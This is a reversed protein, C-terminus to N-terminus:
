QWALPPLFWICVASRVNVLTKNFCWMKFVLGLDIALLWFYWLCPLLRCPDTATTLHAFTCDLNELPTTAIWAFILCHCLCSSFFLPRPLYCRCQFRQLTLDFAFVLNIDPESLPAASWTCTLKTIPLAPYCSPSCCRRCRSFMWFSVVRVIVPSQPFQNVRLLSLLTMFHMVVTALIHMAVLFRCCVSFAHSSRHVIFIFLCLVNSSVLSSIM